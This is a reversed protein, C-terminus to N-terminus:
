TELTVLKQTLYTLSHCFYKDECTVQALINNEDNSFLTEKLIKQHLPSQDKSWQPLIEWVAYTSARKEHPATMMWLFSNWNSGCKLDSTQQVFSYKNIMTRFFSIWSFIIKVCHVPRDKYGPQHVFSFYIIMGHLHFRPNLPNFISACM